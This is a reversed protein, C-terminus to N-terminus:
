TATVLEQPRAGCEPCRQPSGRLDYGCTVCLNADRRIREKRRRRERMVVWAAPLLASCLILTNLGVYLVITPYFKYPTGVALGSRVEGVYLVFGPWEIRWDNRGAGM